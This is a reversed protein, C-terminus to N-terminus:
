EHGISGPVQSDDHALRLFAERFAARARMLKARVAEGTSATRRAIQDIAVGDLYRSSLLAQYHAPLELLTARVLSALEKSELARDPADCSGALWDRAEGDLTAWWRRANEQQSTQRRFRLAVQRRTIGMLWMWLTGRDPDFTGASASKAAALFVEQVIDAVDAANPGVLRAVERWLRKSYAEYLKSWARRSGRQLEVSIQGTLEDM